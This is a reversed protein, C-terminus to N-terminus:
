NAGTNIFHEHTFRTKVVASLMFAVQRSTFIVARSRQQCFYSGHVEERVQEFRYRYFFFFLTWLCSYIVQDWKASACKVSFFAKVDALLYFLQVCLLRQQTRIACQDHAFMVHFCCMKLGFVRCSYPCTLIFRCRVTAFLMWDWLTQTFTSLMHLGNSKIKRLQM